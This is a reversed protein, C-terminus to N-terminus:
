LLRGIERRLQAETLKGLRTAQVRGGRKAFVTTPCGGIGYINSVQGDRDLVVPFGWGNKRVLEAASKKSQRIVVGVFNVQPFEDRVREINDWQPACDAFRTFLFTMVVPKRRLDCVNLAGETEVDCAMTKGPQSDRTKINADGDLPGLVLPAAFVPLQRGADPGLAGPGESRIANVSAVAVAMLFVIGIVWSYASSPKPAQKRELKREAALEAEDGAALKEAASLKRGEGLDGFRDERDPADRDEPREDAV